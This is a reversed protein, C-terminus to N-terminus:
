CTCGPIPVRLTLLHLRYHACTYMYHSTLQTPFTLAITLFLITLTLTPTSHSLPLTLTLTLTLIRALTLTCTPSHVLYVTLRAAGTLTPCTTEIPLARYAFQACGGKSAADWWVDGGCGVRGWRGAGVRGKSAGDRWVEEWCWVRGWGEGQGQEGCGLSDRLGVSGSGVDRGM